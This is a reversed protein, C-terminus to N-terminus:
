QLTRFWERLLHFTQPQKRRFCQRQTVLASGVDSTKVQFPSRSIIWELVTYSSLEGVPSKEAPDGPFLQKASGPGLRHTHGRKRAVSSSSQPSSFTPWHSFHPLFGLQLLLSLRHDHPTHETHTGQSSRLDPAGARHPYHSMIVPLRLSLPKRLQLAFREIQPSSLAAKWPRFFLVSSAPPHWRARSADQVAALV